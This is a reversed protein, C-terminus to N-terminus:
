RTHSSKLVAAGCGCPGRLSVHRAPHRLCWNPDRTYLSRKLTRRRDRLNEMDEERRLPSQEVHGLFLCVGRCSAHEPPAPECTRIGRSVLKPHLISVERRAPAISGRMCLYLAEMWYSLARYLSSIRPDIAKALALEFAPMM